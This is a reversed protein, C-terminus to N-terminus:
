LRTWLVYVSTFQLYLSISNAFELTFLGLPICTNVVLRGLESWHKYRILIFYSLDHRRGSSQASSWNVSPAVPDVEKTWTSHIHSLKHRRLSVTSNRKTADAHSIPMIRCFDFASICRYVPVNWWFYVSLLLLALNLQRTFNHSKRGASITVSKIVSSM